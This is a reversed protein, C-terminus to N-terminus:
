ALNDIAKPIYGVIDSAIVGYETLEEAALDGAMGHVGVGAIVADNLSAGQAVLSAITGALVDGSGATAMGSNGFYSHYLEGDDTAIITPMGKFVITIGFEKAVERIRENRALSDQPLEGFLRKWEGYHPTIILSEVEKLREPCDDFAFLGDGDLVVPLSSNGVVTRILELTEANRSCGSGVLLVQSKNRISNLVNETPSAFSGTDTDPCELLVPETNKVAMVNMSSSPVLAYYMGCGSRLAATAALTAAGTMGRSGTIASVVGHDYKSGYKKRSPIKAHIIEKSIRNHVESQENDMAKM